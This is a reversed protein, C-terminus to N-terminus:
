FPHIDHKSTHLITHLISKAYMFVYTSCHQMTNQIDSSCVNTVVYIPGNENMNLCVNLSLEFCIDLNNWRIDVYEVRIASDYVSAHGHCINSIYSFLYTLNCYM